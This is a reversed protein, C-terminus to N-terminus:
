QKVLPEAVIELWVPETAPMPVTVRVNGIAPGGVLPTNTSPFVSTARIEITSAPEIVQKDSAAPVWWIQRNPVGEYQMCGNLGTPFKLKSSDPVNTTLSMKFMEAITDTAEVRPLRDLSIPQWSFQIPNTSNPETLNSLDIQPYLQSLPVPSVLGAIATQSTADQNAVGDSLM